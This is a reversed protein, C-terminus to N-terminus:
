VNPDIAMIAIISAIMGKSTIIVSMGRWMVHWLTITDM